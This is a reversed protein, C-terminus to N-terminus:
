INANYEEELLLLVRKIFKEVVKSNDWKIGKNAGDIKNIIDKSLVNSSLLAEIIIKATSPKVKGFKINTDKRIRKGINKKGGMDMEKKLNVIADFSKGIKVAELLLMRDEHNEVSCILEAIKINELEGNKVAEKIEPVANIILLYRRSQPNSMGTLDSLLQATIKEKERIHKKELFYESLMGELSAIREALSLDARENNEIWQLIKLKSGIPRQSAIRAIIEKKGAMASALTRREGTILRCKNGYRYVFIPNILQNESITKSLTELSKWEKKKKEIEPDEPSIGEMADKLTLALERNNEPDLEINDLSIVEISLEGAYKNAIEMTRAITEKAESNKINNLKFKSVM